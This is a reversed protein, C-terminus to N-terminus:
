RLRRLPVPDAGTASGTLKIEQGDAKSFDSPRTLYKGNEMKGADGHWRQALYAMSLAPSLRLMTTGV